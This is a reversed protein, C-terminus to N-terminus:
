PRISICTTAPARCVPSHRRGAAIGPGAGAQDVRESAGRGSAQHRRGPEKRDASPVPIPRPGRSLVVDVTSDQKIRTGLSPTQSVVTGPKAHEDYNKTFSATLHLHRLKATVAGRDLGHLQPMAVTPRATLIIAALVLAGLFAMSFVFVGITRRRAAPNVNKRPTYRPAVRTRERRPATRRQM